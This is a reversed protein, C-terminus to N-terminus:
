QSIITELEKLNDGNLNFKVSNATQNVIKCLKPHCLEIIQSDTMIDFDFTGQVQQQGTASLNPLFCWPLTFKFHGEHAELIQLLEIYVVAEEHPQVNGIKIQYFESDEQTVKM